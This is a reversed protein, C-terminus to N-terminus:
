FNNRRELYRQKMEIQQIRREDFERMLNCVQIEKWVWEVDEHNKVIQYLDEFSIKNMANFSLKVICKNNIKEKWEFVKQDITLVDYVSSVIDKKEIYSWNDNRLIFYRLDYGNNKHSATESSLLEKIVFKKEDESLIKKNNILSLTLLSFSNNYNDISISLRSIFLDSYVLKYLDNLINENIGDPDVLIYSFFEENLLIDNESINQKKKKFLRNNGKKDSYKEFLKNFQETLNNSDIGEKISRRIDEVVLM